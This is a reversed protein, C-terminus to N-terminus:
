RIERSLLLPIDLCFTILIYFIMVSCCFQGFYVFDKLLQKNANSFSIYMVQFNIWFFYYLKFGSVSKLKLVICLVCKYRYWKCWRLILEKM